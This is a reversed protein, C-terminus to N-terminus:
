ELSVKWFKWLYYRGMRYADREHQTSPSFPLKLLKAFVKWEGPAILHHTPFVTACDEVIKRLQPTLRMPMREIVVMKPLYKAKLSALSNHVHSSLTPAYSLPKTPASIIGTQVFSDDILAWGTTLGPDLALIRPHNTTTV